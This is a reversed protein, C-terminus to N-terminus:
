GLKPSDTQWYVCIKLLVSLDFALVIPVIDPPWNFGRLLQADMPGDHSNVPVDACSVADTKVNAGHRQKIPTIRGAM